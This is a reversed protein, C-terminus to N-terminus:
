DQIIDFDQPITPIFVKKSIEVNQIQNTFLIEVSNDLEDKYAISEIKSNSETILFESNQFKALYINKNIKKANKIISFFDFNEDIRKIIVQELEPEIIVVKADAIYIEKKVPKLYTWLASQPKAAKLIGIYSLVKGKDDTINQQFNAEFFIIDNISAAAIACILQLLFVYRM